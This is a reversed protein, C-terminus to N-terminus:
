NIGNIIGVTSGIDLRRQEVAQSMQLEMEREFDIDDSTKEVLPREHRSRLEYRDHVRTAEAALEADVLMAEEVEDADNDHEM